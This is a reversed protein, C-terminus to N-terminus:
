FLVIQANIVGGLRCMALGKAIIFLLFIMCAINKCFPVIQAFLTNLYHGVRLIVFQSEAYLGAQSFFNWVPVLKLATDIGLFNAQVEM